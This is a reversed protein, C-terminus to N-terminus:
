NRHQLQILAETLADVANTAKIIVELKITETIDEYYNENSFISTSLVIIDM